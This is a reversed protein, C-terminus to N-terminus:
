AHGSEGKAPMANAASKPVETPKFGDSGVVRSIAGQTPASEILGTMAQAEPMGFPNRAQNVRM